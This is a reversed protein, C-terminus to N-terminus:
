ILNIRKSLLTYLKVGKLLVKEHFNFKSNHLPATFGREENKTGLFFFVGPVTEQYYSFDEALMLPEIDSLDVLDEIQSFLHADNIVPPYLINIHSNIKVGYSREFGENIEGIRRLIDDLIERSFTRITGEIRTNEAIINRVTGGEIRGFTIVSQSLPSLSRSVISQYAELLKATVLISDVATQPMAGHGSKGRIDIDIETSQAMMAGKKSAVVGEEIGPFLHVGFIGKVNYKELLGQAVIDKAGGPGEEAPQFILLINKNFEKYSKLHHAFGLLISMHGDHGCAHMYGNHASKFTCSTEETIPLADMDARFAVTDTGKGEIYVYVGTGCIIEPKYGLKTLVELLYEQTKVERYGVEPIQHLDRRYRTVEELLNDISM